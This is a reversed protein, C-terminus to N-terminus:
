SRGAEPDGPEPQTVGARVAELQACFAIGLFLAVSTLNAWLLLAIVGTLPGYPSGFSASSQVYLSLLYTFVVWLTVAVGAGIAIWSWGPQRRRPSREILLTIAALALLIGVPFRAVTWLDRTLGSWDYRQGFVRGAQGGGVVVLFGVLSLIGASVAMAAARAYKRLTPRDRQIGYIRNAGREVQGMAMTLAVLAVAVGAWLAVTGHAARQQGQEGPAVALSTRAASRGPM